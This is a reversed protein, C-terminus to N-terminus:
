RGGIGRQLMALFRQGAQDAPRVGENGPLHAQTNPHHAPPSHVRHPEDRGVPEGDIGRSGVGGGTDHTEAGLEHGREQSLPCSPDRDVMDIERGQANGEAVKAEAAARHERGLGDSRCWHGGRCGVDVNPDAGGVIEVGDGRQAVDLEGL